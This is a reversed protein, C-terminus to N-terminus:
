SSIFVLAQYAADAYHSDFDLHFDKTVSDVGYLRLGNGVGFGWTKNSTGCDSGSQEFLCNMLLFHFVAARNGNWSRQVLSLRHVHFFASPSTPCFLLSPQIVTHFIFGVNALLIWKQEKNGGRPQDWKDNLVPDSIQVSTISSILITLDIKLTM